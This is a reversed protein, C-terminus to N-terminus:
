GWNLVLYDLSILVGLRETIRSCTWQQRTETLLCVWLRIPRVWDQHFKKLSSGFFVFFCFFQLFQPFFAVLYSYYLALPNSGKERVYKMLFASRLFFNKPAVLSSPGQLVFGVELIALIALGGRYLNIQGCWNEVCNLAGQMRDCLTSVFKSKQLLVVDYAYGEV